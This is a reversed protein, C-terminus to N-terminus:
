NGLELVSREMDNKMATMLATNGAATRAYADLRDLIGSQNYIMKNTEQLPKSPFFLFPETWICQMCATSPNDDQRLGLKVGYLPIRTDRETNPKTAGTVQVSQVADQVPQPFSDNGTAILSGSPQM